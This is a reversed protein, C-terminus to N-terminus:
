ARKKRKGFGIGALGLGLLALTAPEPVDGANEGGGGTDVATLHITIASLGGWDAWHQSAGAPATYSFQYDGTALGSLTVGQWSLSSALCTAEDNCYYPTYFLNSGYTLGTPKSTAAVVFPVTANYTTGNIGVFTAAGEIDQGDGIGDVHYSTLWLNLQGASAGPTYGLGIAHASAEQALPMLLMASLLPTLLKRTSFTM